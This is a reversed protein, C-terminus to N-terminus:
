HFTRIGIRRENRSKKIFFPTIEQPSRERSSELNLEIKPEEKHALKRTHSLIAKMERTNESNMIMKKM